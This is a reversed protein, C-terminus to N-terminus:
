LHFEEVGKGINGKPKRRATLVQIEELYERENM